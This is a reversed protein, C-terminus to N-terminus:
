KFAIQIWTNCYMLPPGPESVNRWLLALLSKQSRVLFSKGNSDRQITTGSQPEVNSAFRARPVNDLCMDVVVVDDGEQAAVGCTCSVQSCRFTRVHVQLPSIVCLTVKKSILM